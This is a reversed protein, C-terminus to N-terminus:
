FTVRFDKYQELPEQYSIDKGRISGSFHSDLRDTLELVQPKPGVVVMEVRGDDLNKVWGGLKLESAFRHTTYRFGM